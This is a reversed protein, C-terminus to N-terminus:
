LHATVVADAIRPAAHGDGFPNHARAMADYARPDDLLESVADVLRDADSGILRATGAAVAEPRETVDRTVLVPHGLAPAEEQIGGSDTVILSARQMLYVFQHYELPDILFVNSLDGLIRRAPEQVNPNLHVPYVVQVDPRAALRALGEFTSAMRTGFNERRHGTVVILRKNSNLFPFASACEDRFAPDRDFRQTVELLADIGTNGTVFVRDQPVGESLLNERSTTTPAFHLDSLVTTMRRNAEEPWPAMIDGTRLGAEIHGVAVKRYFAALAGALTTTTDGQVLIRHPAFDAIVRDLAGLARATLEQLNPKGNILGLDYDPEMDFLHLVQDLMERHQGTVCIRTEVDPVARFARVVPAMKIAEPRTGFVILTRLKM